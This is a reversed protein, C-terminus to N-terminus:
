SVESSLIKLVKRAWVKDSEKEQESLGAYPTKMQREWREWEEKTFVAYRLGAQNKTAHKGIFGMLHAWQEHELAALKELLACKQFPSGDEECLYYGCEIDPNFKCVMVEETEQNSM